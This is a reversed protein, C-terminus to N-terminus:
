AKLKLPKQNEDIAAFLYTAEIATETEGSYKEEKTIKVSARMRYVGTEVITGSVIAIDGESLSKRFKVADVSITVVPKRVHRSAAIYAVEDMWELARGGFLTGHDNLDSRFVIRTQTTENRDETM